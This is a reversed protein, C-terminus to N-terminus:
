RTLGKTFLKVFIKLLDCELPFLQDAKFAAKGIQINLDTSCGKLVALNQLFQWLSVSVSNHNGLTSSFFTLFEMVPLHPTIEKGRSSSM